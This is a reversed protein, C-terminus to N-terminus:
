DRRLLRMMGCLNRYLLWADLTYLLWAFAPLLPVLHGLLNDICWLYFTNALYNPHSTYPLPLRDRAFYLGLILLMIPLILLNLAMYTARAVAEEPWIGAQVLQAATSTLTAATLLLYGALIIRRNNKHTM